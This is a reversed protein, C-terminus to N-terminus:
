FMIHYAKNFVPQAGEVLDIHFKEHPYHGLKGDFLSEYKKLTNEFLQKQKHAM